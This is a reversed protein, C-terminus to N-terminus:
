RGADRRLSALRDVTLGVRDLMESVRTLRFGRGALGDLLEPILPAVPDTRDSGLHLLIVGGNEAHAILRDV